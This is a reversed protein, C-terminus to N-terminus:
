TRANKKQCSGQTPTNYYVGSAPATDKLGTRDMHEDLKTLMEPLQRWPGKCRLYVITRPAIDKLIIDELSM